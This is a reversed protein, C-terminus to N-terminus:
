GARVTSAPGVDMKEAPESPLDVIVKCHAYRIGKKELTETVRPLLCIDDVTHYIILNNHKNQSVCGIISLSSKLDERGHAKPL